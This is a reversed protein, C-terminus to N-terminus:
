NLKLRGAKIAEIIKQINEDIAKKAAEVTEELQDEVVGNDRALKKLYERLEKEEWKMKESRDPNFKGSKYKRLVAKRYDAILAKLKKKQRM